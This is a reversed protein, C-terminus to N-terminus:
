PLTLGFPDPRYPDDGDFFKLSTLQLAKSDLAPISGVGILVKEAGTVLRDEDKTENLEEDEGLVGGDLTLPFEYERSLLAVFDFVLALLLGIAILMFVGLFSLGKM